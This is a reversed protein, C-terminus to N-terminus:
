VGKQKELRSTSHWSYYIPWNLILPSAAARSNTRHVGGPMNGICKRSPSSSGFIQELPTRRVCGSCCVKKNRWYVLAITAITFILPFEAARSNSHHFGGQMTCICMRSLSSRGFTQEMNTGRVWHSSCLQKSRWYVLAIVAITFILPSAAPRIYSCRFGGLMSTICKRSPTSSGFIQEMYTRQVCGSSCVQKSSWYVLAIAATTFRNFILTSSAPRINSRHVGELM